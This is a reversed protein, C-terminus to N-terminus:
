KLQDVVSKKNKEYKSKLIPASNAIVNGGNDNSM